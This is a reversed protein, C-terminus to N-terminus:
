VWKMRKERQLKAQVLWGQSAYFLDLGCASYLKQSVIIYMM